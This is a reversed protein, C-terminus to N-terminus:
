RHRGHVTQQHHRLLVNADSVASRDATARAETRAVALSRCEPCDPHPEPQRPPFLRELYGSHRKTL